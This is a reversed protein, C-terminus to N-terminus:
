GRYGKLNRINQFVLYKFSFPLHRKIWAYLPEHKRPVYKQCLDNISHGARFDAFFQEREPNEPTTHAFLPNTKIITEVDCNFLNMFKPLQMLIELGAETNAIISSYGRNDKQQPFTRIFNNFDAITLDGWRAQDRFRCHEGCSDRLCLQNLFLRNYPDEIMEESTGDTYQIRSRHRPYNGLFAKKVRFTYSCIEKNESIEKEKLYKTFVAPSGVGHCILDVCLLNKYVKGLFCRLGAVQCPTGSFLVAYGNELQNRVELFCNQMDSQVYKSKKFEDINPYPLGCHEVYLHNFKAGYVFLKGQHSQAFADCISGFAGGSSSKQWQEQSKCIAATAIQKNLLKINVPRAKRVPCVKECAGCHICQNSNAEPYLFGNQDRVMEICHIPCINKCATCGTCDVKGKLFYLM